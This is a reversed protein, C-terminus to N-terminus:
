AGAPLTGGLGKRNSATSSARLECSDAGIRYEGNSLISIMHSLHKQCVMPSCSLQLTPHTCIHSLEKQGKVM